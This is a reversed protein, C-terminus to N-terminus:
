ELLPVASGPPLGLALPLAPRLARRPRQARGDRPGGAGPGGPLEPGGEGPLRPEMAAPSPRRSRVTLRPCPRRAARPAQAVRLRGRPGGPGAETGAGRAPTVGEINEAWAFYGRKRQARPAALCPRRAPLAGRQTPPPCRRRAFRASLTRCPLRPRTAARTPRALWSPARAAAFPGRRPAPPAPPPPQAVSGSGWPQRQWSGPGKSPRGPRQQRHAPGPLRCPPPEPRPWHRAPHGRPARPHGPLVPM